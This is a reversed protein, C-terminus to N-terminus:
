PVRGVPGRVTGAPEPPNWLLRFPLGTRAIPPRARAPRRGSIPTGFPPHRRVPRAGAPPASTARWMRPESHHTLGAAPRHWGGWRTGPRDASTSYGLARMASHHLSNAPAWQLM